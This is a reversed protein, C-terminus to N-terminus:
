PNSTPIGLFHAAKGSFIGTAPTAAGGDVPDIYRPKQPDGLLIFAYTKGDAFSGGAPTTVIGADNLTAGNTVADITGEAIKAGCAALAVVVPFLLLSFRM